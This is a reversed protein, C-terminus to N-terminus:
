CRHTDKLSGGVIHPILIMELENSNSLIWNTINSPYKQGRLFHFSLFVEGIYSVLNINDLKFSSSLIMNGIHSINTKHPQFTPKLLAGMLIKWMSDSKGNLPVKKEEM